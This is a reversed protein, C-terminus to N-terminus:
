QATGKKASIATGIRHRRTDGSAATAADTAAAPRWTARKWSVTM